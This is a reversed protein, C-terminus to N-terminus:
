GSNLDSPDQCGAEERLQDGCGTPRCTAGMTVGSDLIRVFTNLVYADYIDDYVFEVWHRNGNGLRYPKGNQKRASSVYSDFCSWVFAADGRSLEVRCEDLAWNWAEAECRLVGHDFYYRKDEHPPRGQTHGLVCHGIEHLAIMYAQGRTLGQTELFPIEIRPPDEEVFMMGGYMKNMWDIRIGHEDRLDEIHAYLDVTNTM